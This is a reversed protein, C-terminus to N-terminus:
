RACRDRIERILRPLLIFYFELGIADIVPLSSYLETAGAVSMSSNLQIIAGLVAGHQFDFGSNIEVSSGLKTTANVTLSAGLQVMGLVSLDSEFNSFGDVSFASTSNSVGAVNLGGKLLSKSLDWFYVTLQM